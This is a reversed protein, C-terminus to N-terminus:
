VQKYIELRKNVLEETPYTEKIKKFASERFQIQKKRDSMLEITKRAFNENENEIYCDKNNIFDLGEVGIQTTIFPIGNNAAEIIKMRMGSGTLIPVIMISHTAYPSITSIFGPMIVNKYQKTIKKKTRERWKGIISFSTNPYKSVIMDWVNDLFWMVGEYNPAHYEGGIFILNNSFEYNVPLTEAPAPIVAPSVFITTSVGEKILINRDIDTLTIVASCANMATIEQQKLMNFQYYNCASLSHSDKIFRSNRIFHIEHQVFIRKIDPFAFAINLSNAFEFQLIDINDKWIVEQLFDLFKYDISNEFSHTLFPNILERNQEARNCLKTVIKRYKRILWSPRRKQYAHFTVDPWKKKLANEDKLKRPIYVFSIHIEKRLADIMHYQAQAGGSNLPYPFVPTVILLHKDLM